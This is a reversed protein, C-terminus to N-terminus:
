GATHLISQHHLLILMIFDVKKNLTAQGRIDMTTNMAMNMIVNMATNMAAQNYISQILIKQFAELQLRSHFDGLLEKKAAALFYSPLCEFYKLM